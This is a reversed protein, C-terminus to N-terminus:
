YACIHEVHGPLMYRNSRWGKSRIGCCSVIVAQTGVTVSGHMASEAIGHLTKAVTILRTAAYVLGERGGEM